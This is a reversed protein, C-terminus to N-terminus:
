GVIGRQTLERAIRNLQIEIVKREDYLDIARKRGAKGLQKAWEPNSIFREVAKALAEPSRVPVILGTEESLVEERSGRIDTAVVPKSLMMAEIISRPM